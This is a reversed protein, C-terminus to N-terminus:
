VTVLRLWNTTYCPSVKEAKAKWGQDFGTAAVAIAKPYRRNIQDVTKVLLRNDLRLPDDALDFM